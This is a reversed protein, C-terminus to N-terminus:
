GGGPGSKGCGGVKGRSLPRCQHQRFVTEVGLAKLWAAREADLAHAVHARRLLHEVARPRGEAARAGRLEVSRAGATAPEDGRVFRERTGVAASEVTELAEAAGRGVVARLRERVFLNGREDGLVDRQVLLQLTKVRTRRLDLLLQLASRRRAWADRVRDHQAGVLGSNTAAVRRLGGVVGLLERRGLRQEASLVEGREELALDREGGDLRAEFLEEGGL